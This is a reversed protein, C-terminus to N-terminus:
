GTQSKRLNRAAEKSRHKLRVRLSFVDNAEKKWRLYFPKPV